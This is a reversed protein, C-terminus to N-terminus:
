TSKLNMDSTTTATTTTVPANARTVIDILVSPVTTTSTPQNTPQHSLTAILPPQQDITVIHTAQRQRELERLRKTQRHTLILTHTLTHTDRMGQSRYCCVACVIHHNHSHIQQTREALVHPRHVSHRTTSAVYAHQDLTIPTSSHYNRSHTYRTHLRRYM